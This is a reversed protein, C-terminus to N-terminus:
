GASPASRARRATRGPRGHAARAYPWLWRKDGRGGRKGQVSVPQCPVGATLMDVPALEPLPATLDGHNPVAPDLRKLIAAADPENEFHWLTRHPVVLGVGMGLGDYGSCLHASTIM